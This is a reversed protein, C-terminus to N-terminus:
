RDFKRELFIVREQTDNSLKPKFGNKELVRISGINDSVVGGSISTIQSQKQCWNVLGAILESGLGQGWVSHSLLYGLNLKVSKDVGIAEFLFLFGVVELTSKTQITLFASEAARDKIWDWAKDESNIDQWGDPLDKTVEKSLIDVVNQAFIKENSLGEGQSEWSQILLRETEFRCSIQLPKHDAM